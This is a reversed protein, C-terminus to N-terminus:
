RALFDEDAFARAVPLMEFRQICFELATAFRGHLQTGGGFIEFIFIQEFHHIGPQNRNHNGVGIEGFDPRREVGVDFRIEIDDEIVGALDAPGHAFVAGLQHFSDVFEHLRVFLTSKEAIGHNLAVCLTGLHQPVRNGGGLKLFKM